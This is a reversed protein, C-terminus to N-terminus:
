GTRTDAEAQRRGRDMLRGYGFHSGDVAAQIGPEDGDGAPDGNTYGAVSLVAYRGLANVTTRCEVHTCHAPVDGGTLAKVNPKYGSEVAAADKVTSFVAIGVTVALGDRELTARFMKECGSQELVAALRDTAASACDTTASTGAVTYGRGNVTVKEDPFLTDTSIPAKDKEPNKLYDEPPAPPLEEEFSPQPQSPSSPLDEPTPLAQTPNDSPDGGGESVVAVAVIGGVLAAALTAGGILLWRRKRVRERESEEALATWDPTSGGSGYPDGQGFSM